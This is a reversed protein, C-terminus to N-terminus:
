QVKYDATLTFFHSNLKEIGITEKRESVFNVEDHM